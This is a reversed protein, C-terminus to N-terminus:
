GVSQLLVNNQFTYITGSDLVDYDYCKHVENMIVLVYTVHLKTSFMIVQDWIFSTCLFYLCSTDTKCVTGLTVGKKM